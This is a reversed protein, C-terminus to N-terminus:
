QNRKFGKFTNIYLNETRVSLVGCLEEIVVQAHLPNILRRILLIVYRLCSQPSLSLGRTLGDMWAARQRWTLWIWMGLTVTTEKSWTGSPSFTGAANQSSLSQRQYSPEWCLSRTKRLCPCTWPRRWTPFPATIHQSEQRSTISYIRVPWWSVRSPCCRSTSWSFADSDVSKM